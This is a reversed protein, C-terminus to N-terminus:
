ASTTASRSEDEGARAAPVVAPEPESPADSRHWGRGSSRVTILLGAALALLGLVLLLLPVVNKLLNIQGATDEAREVGAAVTDETGAFDGALATPGQEGGPGRLVTNPSEAATVVVGSTPEVWITRENSYVIDATVSPEESGVLSGPVETSRIVTEPVRQVFRYVELGELEEVGEFTATWARGTTPNFVEYDKQETGFPFTVTLGEVSRSEDQDVSDSDCEVAVATHRDLCVRYEYANIPTDVDDPDVMTSGFAWVAVDDSAAPDEPDGRVEQRVEAESVRKEQLSGADFFTVDTGSAAADTTQDLPLRVMSDVLVLRVVLAATLAFAGLAILALGLARRRM